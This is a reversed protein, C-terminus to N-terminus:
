KMPLITLIINSSSCLNNKIIVIAGYLADNDLAHGVSNGFSINSVLKKIAYPEQIFVIDMNLDLIVQPLAASATHNHQLNIQICRIKKTRTMKNTPQNTAM